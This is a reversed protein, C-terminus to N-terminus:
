CVEQFENKWLLPLLTMILQDFELQKEHRQCHTELWNIVNILEKEFLVKIQKKDNPINLLPLVAQDDPENSSSIQQVNLSVNSVLDILKEASTLLQDTNLTSTRNITIATTRPYLHSWNTSALQELNEYLHRIDVLEMWKLEMRKGESDFLLSLRENDYQPPLSNINLQPDHIRPEDIWLSLSNYFTTLKNAYTMHQQSAYYESAQCLSRKMQKLFTIQTPTEFLRYGVHHLGNQHKSLYITFFNEWVIPLLPHKVSMESAMTGWRYLSLSTLPISPYHRQQILKKWISEVKGNSNNELEKKLNMLVNEDLEFSYEANLFFYSVVPYRSLLSSDISLLSWYIQTADTSPLPLWSFFGARSQNHQNPSLASVALEFLHDVVEKNMVDHVFSHSLIQDLVYLISNDKNWEKLATLLKFWLLLVLRRYKPSDELWILLDLLASALLKSTLSGETQQQTHLYSTATKLFSPPNDSANLLTKLDVNEILYQVSRVLIGSMDHLIRISALYKGNQILQSLYAIGLEFFGAASNGPVDLGFLMYIALLSHNQNAARQLEALNEGILSEDNFDGHTDEKNASNVFKEISLCSRNLRLRLLEFWIWEDLNQTKSNKNSTSRKIKEYANIQQQHEKTATIKDCYKMHLQLLIFAVKCHVFYPVFLESPTDLSFNWNISDILHIALQFSVTSEIDMLWKEIQELDDRNPKWLHIPLERFVGILVKGVTTISSAALTVFHSILTPEITSFHVLIARGDRLSYERSIPHIFCINFIVNTFQGDDDGPQGLNHLVKLLSLIESPTSVNLMQDLSSNGEFTIIENDSISCIIHLLRTRVPSPLDFLAFLSLLNWRVNRAKSIISEVSRYIYAYYHKWLKENEETSLCKSVCDVHYRCAHVCDRVLKGIHKHFMKYQSDSYTSFGQCLIEAFLDLLALTKIAHEYMNDIQNHDDQNNTINFLLKMLYNLDFQQLLGILDDENLTDWRLIATREHGDADILLWDNKTNPNIPTTPCREGNEGIWNQLFRERNKIPFLITALFHACYKTYTDSYLVTLSSPLLFKVFEIAWQSIGPPCRLVHNIIFLTENYTGNSYVASVTRKLVQRTYTYFYNDRTRYRQFNFLIE